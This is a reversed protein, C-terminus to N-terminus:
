KKVEITKGIKKNSRHVLQSPRYEKLEPPADFFNQLNLKM